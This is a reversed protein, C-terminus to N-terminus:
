MLYKMILAATITVVLASLCISMIFMGLFALDDMKM